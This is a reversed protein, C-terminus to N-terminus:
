KTSRKIVDYGQEQLHYLFESAVHSGPRQWRYFLLEEGTAAAIESENVIETENIALAIAEHKDRALSSM